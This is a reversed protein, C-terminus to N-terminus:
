KLFIQKTEKKTIETVRFFDIDEIDFYEAAGHGLVIQPSFYNHINKATFKKFETETFTAILLGKKYTTWTYYHRRFNKKLRAEITIKKM